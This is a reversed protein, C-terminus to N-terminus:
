AIMGGDALISAGNIFSAHQSALFIALGAIDDPAAMRGVPIEAVVEAFYEEVTGGNTEVFERAIRDMMHSQVPGPCIENCTIGFEGYEKAITKTIGSLGHKSVTYPLRQPVGRLGYISSINIVRGWHREIMHPLYRKAFIFPVTTNLRLTLDWVDVSVDHTLHDDINVGINNVLIDFPTDPPDFPQALDMQVATAGSTAEIASAEMQNDRYQFIVDDGQAAFAKVIARGLSGTGGTVFVTHGM